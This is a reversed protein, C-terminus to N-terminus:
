FYCYSSPSSSLLTCLSGISLFILLLNNINEQVNKGTGGWLQRKDSGRDCPEKIVQSPYLGSDWRSLQCSIMTFPILWLWLMQALPIKPDRHGLRSLFLCLLFGTLNHPEHLTLYESALSLPPALIKSGRCYHCVMQWCITKVGSFFFRHWEVLSAKKILMMLFSPLQLHMTKILQILSHM